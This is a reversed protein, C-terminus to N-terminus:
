CDVADPKTPLMSFALFSPDLRIAACFREGAQAADGQAACCLGLNWLVAASEGYLRHSAEFLAQAQGYAALGFYLGGLRFPFDDREGLHYYNAWAQDAVRLVEQRETDGLAVARQLLIPACDRAILPDCGSLRLLALLQQTTLQEFVPRLGGRLLGFLDDPGRHEVVQDFALRTEAFDAQGFIFASVALSGHRYATTLVEGGRQVTYEAIAHYNVPFSFSGHRAM